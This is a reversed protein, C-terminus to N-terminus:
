LLLYQIKKKNKKKLLCGTRRYKDPSYMCKQDNQCLDFLLCCNPSFSFCDFTALYKLYLCFFM